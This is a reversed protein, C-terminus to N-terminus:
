GGYKERMNNVLKRLGDSVEVNYFDAERIRKVREPLADRQKLCYDRVDNLAPLKEALKGEKIIQHLLAEGEIEEGELAIVDKVFKGDIYQRYIQKKGPLTQKEKSLKIKPEGDLEALKYVGGIAPQDKSVIMDTGVGFADIRAGEDILREIKYENLDNSATIRIYNLSEANFIERVLKSDEVLDGSDLRVAGLKKGKKELEKAVKVANYAGKITDYTDILLTANNPFSEVYAEFAEIETPFAMVFSHAHTGKVPIGYKRGAEVNSTGVCGAIYAARAGSIGAKTGHARRLGFDIVARNRGKNASDVIRSAKSATRVADNITALLYTEIFQAQDLPATIRLIPENGFIPTGEKVAYVDGTFEFDQLYNLFKDTFLDLTKLYDIDEKEFKLNTLYDVVDELGAAILYGRDKPLSRVFLDFTATKNQMDKDYYAQLMTLQYLDTELTRSM